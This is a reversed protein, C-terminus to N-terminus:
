QMEGLLGDLDSRAVEITEAGVALRVNKDSSANGIRRVAAGLILGLTQWRRLQNADDDSAERIRMVSGSEIDALSRWDNTVISGTPSPIPHGHPDEKPNGLFNSIRRELTESMSYEMSEAEAHVESWDLDLVRYLFLEVLRHRRIVRRATEIGIKTLLIGTRVEYDIWGAADLRRLMETVSPPRIKLLQALHGTHVKRQDGGLRHIAKLYKQVSQSPLERDSQDRRSASDAM